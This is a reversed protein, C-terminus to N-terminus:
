QRLSQYFFPSPDWGLQNLNSSFLSIRPKQPNGAPAQLVHHTAGVLYKTAVERIDSKKDGHKKAHEGLSQAAAAPCGSVCCTLAHSLVACCPAASTNYQM